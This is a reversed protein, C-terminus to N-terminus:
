ASAWRGRFSTDIYGFSSCVASNRRYTNSDAPLEWEPALSPRVTTEDEGEFCDIRSHSFLDAWNDPLKNTTSASTTSFADDFVVHYQPSCLGTKLNLVIPVTQAHRPSHGLYIAQRARPQWKPLKHGQQLKPDLVSVPCGFTHFDVLGDQRAEQKTFIEEPSLGSKEPTANHIDVAMKLAFPWLDMTVAEPWKEIAHLLMTRARDSITRINWEAIGNQSHNNVGSLTIKQQNLEISAMYERKAMIGNDARYAKIKVGQTNAFQEFQQKGDVAEAGGTSYHCKLYMFRSAHDMYLSAAHYRATTPKGQYTDVYGPTPSEIQDVSVCDGPQLDGSDIPHAKESSAVPRKHAKGHQCSHCIPHDCGALVKPLRGQRALHELHGFSMHSLRNHWRLLLQQSASLNPPNPTIAPAVNALYASVGEVTHFIPLRSRNDYQITRRFGDFTFIEHTGDGPKQTQQAIQQPCLLGMSAKLVYLADKIFLDIEKNNDDRISWKLLGIGDVQLGSAIGNIKVNSIPKLSIFNEKKTSLCASAGTDICIREADTDFNYTDSGGPTSLSYLM